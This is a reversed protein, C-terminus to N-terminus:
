DTNKSERSINLFHKPTKRADFFIDKSITRVISSWKSRYYSLVENVLKGLLKVVSNYEM